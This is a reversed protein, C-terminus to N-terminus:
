SNQPNSTRRKASNQLRCATSSRLYARSTNRIPSASWTASRLSITSARAILRCAEEMRIERILDNPLMGTQTRLKNSFVPQSLNMERAFAEITWDADDLHQAVVARARAIFAEDVVKPEEATPTATDEQTAPTTPEEIATVARAIPAANASVAEEVQKPMAENPAESTIDATAGRKRKYYRKGIIFGVCLAAAVILLGILHHLTHNTGAHLLPIPIGVTLLQKM